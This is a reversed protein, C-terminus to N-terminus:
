RSIEKFDTTEGWSSTFLTAKVEGHMMEEVESGM